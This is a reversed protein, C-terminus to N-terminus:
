LSLRSVPATEKCSQSGGVPRGAPGTLRRQPSSQVSRLNTQVYRRYKNQGARGAIASPPVRFPFAAGRSTNLGERPRDSSLLKAFYAWTDVKMRNGSCDAWCSLEITRVLWGDYEEITKLEALTKPQLVAFLEDQLRGNTGAKFLRAM